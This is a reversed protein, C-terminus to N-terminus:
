GPPKIRNHYVAREILWKGLAAKLIYIPFSWHHYWHLVLYLGLWEAFPEGIFALVASLVSQAIIFSMWRPFYQYILMHSVTLLGWDIGVSDPVVPLLTIPYAWLQMASGVADMATVMFMIYIGYALIVATKSKDVVRWWIVWPVFLVAVLAWWQPTLVEYQLWHQMQLEHIRSKGELIEYLLSNNAM